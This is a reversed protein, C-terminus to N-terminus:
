KERTLTGPNCEVTCEVDEELNLSSVNKLLKELEEYPLYSPTGGGIFITNFSYEKSTSNIEINLADVYESMVDEKGSYSSFDCYKCKQKCFPIHIYLSIKKM